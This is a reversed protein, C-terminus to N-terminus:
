RGIYQLANGMLSLLTNAADVLVSANARYLITNAQRKAIILGADRLINSHRTVTPWAADIVSTLEESTNAGSRLQAMVECRLPHSLAKFGSNQM